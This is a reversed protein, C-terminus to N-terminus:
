SSLAYALTESIMKQFGPTEYYKIFKEAKILKNEWWFMYSEWFNRSIKRQLNQFIAYTKSRNQGWVVLIARNRLMNAIKSDLVRIPRKKRILQAKGQLYNSYFTVSFICSNNEEAMVCFFHLIGSVVSWQTITHM